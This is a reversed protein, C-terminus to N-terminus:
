GFSTRWQSRKASTLAEKGETEAVACRLFDTSRWWTKEEDFVNRGEDDDQVESWINGILTEDMAAPNGPGM